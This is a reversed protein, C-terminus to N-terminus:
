NNEKELLANIPWNIKRVPKNRSIEVSVKKGDLLFGRVIAIKGVFLKEVEDMDEFPCLRVKMGLQLDLDARLKNKVVEEKM